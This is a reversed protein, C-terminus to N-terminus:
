WLDIVDNYISSDPRKTKLHNYMEEMHHKRINLSNHLNEVADSIIGVDTTVLLEMPM